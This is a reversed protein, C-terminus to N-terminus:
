VSGSGSSASRSWLSLNARGSCGFGLILASGPWGGVGSYHRGKGTPDGFFLLKLWRSGALRRLETLRAKACGSLMGRGDGEARPEAGPSLQRREDRPHQRSTDTSGSRSTAGLAHVIEAATM